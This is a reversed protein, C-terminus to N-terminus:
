FQSLTVGACWVLSLALVFLERIEGRKKHIRTNKRLFVLVIRM